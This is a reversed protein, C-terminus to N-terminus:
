GHRRRSRSELAALEDATLVHQSAPPPAARHEAWSLLALLALGSWVLTMLLPAALWVRLPGQVLLVCVYAVHFVALPLSIICALRASGRRDSQLGIGAALLGLGGVCSGLMSVAAFKQHLPFQSWAAVVTQAPPGDAARPNPSQLLSFFSGICCSGLCLALGATQFIM